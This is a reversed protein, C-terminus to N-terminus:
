ETVKVKEWLECDMLRGETGRFDNRSIGIMQFGCKKALAKSAANKPEIRLLIKAMKMETFCYQTFMTVAETGIGKGFQDSDLFYGMECKPVRWNLDKACIQGILQNKAKLFIGAFLNKGNKRERNKEMIYLRKANVSINQEVTMPFYDALLERNKKVLAYLAPADSLVYPRIVIRDSYLHLPPIL